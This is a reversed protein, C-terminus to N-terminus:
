CHDAQTGQDQERIINSDAMKERFLFGYTKVRHRLPFSFVEVHKDSLILKLTRGSLPHIMLEYALNIDFDALHRDLLEEIPAPAYINLPAKRGM